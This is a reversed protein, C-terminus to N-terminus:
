CGHRRSRSNARLEHAAGGPKRASAGRGAAAAVASRALRRDAGDAGRLLALAGLIYVATAIGCRLAGPVARAHGAARASRQHGVAAARALGGPQRESRRPCRSHQRGAGRSARPGRAQAVADMEADPEQPQRRRHRSGDRLRGLLLDARQAAGLSDLYELPHVNEGAGDRNVLLYYIISTRRCREVLRRELEQRPLGWLYTIAVAARVRFQERAPRRIRAARSRRRSVVFVQRVEPQLRSALDAHRRPEAPVRRRHFESVGTAGSPPSSCSPRTRSVARERQGGVFELALDQM